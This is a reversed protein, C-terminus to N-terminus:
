ISSIIKVFKAPDLSAGGILGGNINPKSFLEKAINENVSGGYIIPTTQNNIFKRIFLHIEEAQDPTANKGTGIAWVPEYAIICNEFVNTSANETLSLLQETIVELTLGKEREDLTEGVCLIPILQSEKAYHFKAAILKDTENLTHRRESHGVLVYKCAFENLMVGSIEGTFAGNNRPYLNQAGLEINSNKILEYVQPIFIFPPLVVCGCSLDKPLNNIIEHILNAITVSDGNMKWNGIIFKNIM